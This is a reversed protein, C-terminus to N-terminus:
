MVEDDDRFVKGVIQFHLCEYSGNDGPLEVAYDELGWSDAPSELPIVANIQELLTSITLQQAEAADWIIATDPLAHRRITLRLRM